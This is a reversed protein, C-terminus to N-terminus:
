LLREECKVRSRAEVRAEVRLGHDHLVRCAIRAITASKLRGNASRAWRACTATAVSQAMRVKGPKPSASVLAGHMGLM